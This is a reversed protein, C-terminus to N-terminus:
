LIKFAFFDFCSLSVRGMEDDILCPARYKRFSLKSSPRPTVLKGRNVPYSSKMTKSVSPRLCLEQEVENSKKKSKWQNFIISLM